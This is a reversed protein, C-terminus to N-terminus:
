NRRRCSQIQFPESQRCLRQVLEQPHIAGGPSFFGVSDGGEEALETVAQRFGQPLLVASEKAAEALIYLDASPSLTLWRRPCETICLHHQQGCATDEQSAAMVIRFHPLLGQGWRSLMLPSPSFAFVKNRLFHLSPLCNGATVLIM